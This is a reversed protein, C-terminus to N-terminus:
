NLVSNVTGKPTYEVTDTHTTGTFVLNVGKGTFVAQGIEGKPTYNVSGSSSEGTFTLSECEDTEIPITTVVSVTTKTPLAGANFEATPLKGANFTLSPLTGANFTASGLRGGSLSYNYLTESNFYLTKQTEDYTFNAAARGEDKELTPLAGADFSLTPLAGANFNASPLEGGDFELSPLTGVSVIQGIDKKGAAGLSHKHSGIAGKPTISVSLTQQEGSFTQKSVTGEPTYNVIGSGVSINGGPTCQHEITAKEGVFTSTINGGLKYEVWAGNLYKRISLVKAM